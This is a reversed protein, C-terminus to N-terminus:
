PHLASRRAPSVQPRARGASVLVFAATGAAYAATPGRARPVTLRRVLLPQIFRSRTTVSAVASVTPTMAAAVVAAVPPLADDARRPASAAFGFSGGSGASTRARLRHIM